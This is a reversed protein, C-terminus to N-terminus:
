GEDKAPEEGKAPEDKTSEDTETVDEDIDPETESEPTAIVRNVRRFASPEGQHPTRTAQRLLLRWGFGFRARVIARAITGIFSPRVEM